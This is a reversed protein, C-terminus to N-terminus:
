PLNFYFFNLRLDINVQWYLFDFFNCATQAPVNIMEDIPSARDTISVMTIERHHPHWMYSVALQRDLEIPAVVACHRDFKNGSARATTDRIFQVLESEVAYSM